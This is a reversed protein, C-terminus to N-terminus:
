TQIWSGKSNASCVQCTRYRGQEETEKNVERKVDTPIVIGLAGVYHDSNNLDKTDPFGEKVRRM